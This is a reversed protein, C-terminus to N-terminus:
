PRAEGRAADRCAILGTPQVHEPLTKGCNICRGAEVPCDCDTHGCQPWAPKEAAAAARIQEVIQRERIWEVNSRDLFQTCLAEVAALRAEAAKARRKMALWDNRYKPLVEERRLRDIEDAARHLLHNLCMLNTQGPCWRAWSRLQATDLPATDHDTM